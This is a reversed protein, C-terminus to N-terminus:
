AEHAIRLSLKSRGAQRDPFLIPVEVVSANARVMRWTMEIQFAYGVSQVADLDIIELIHRQFCKFGSTLDSYPLNLALSAYRNGLRSLWRRHREWGIVGGGAMYRCGLAVDATQTADLLARLHRPQHSFDADMQVIQDFNNRLAWRFGDLYAPGLGRPGTRSLLHVNQQATDVMEATNDPSSDDVVLIHADPAEARIALLLRAINDRENYTPIVILASM